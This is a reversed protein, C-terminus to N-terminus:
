PWRRRVVGRSLQRRTHTRLTDTQSLDLLRAVKRTQRNWAQINQPNSLRLRAVPFYFDINTQPEGAIATV